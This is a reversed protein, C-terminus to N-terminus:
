LPLTLLNNDNTHDSFRFADPSIGRWHSFGAMKLSFADDVKPTPSFLTMRFDPFVARVAPALSRGPVYLALDKEQKMKAGM